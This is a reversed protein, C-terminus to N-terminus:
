RSTCRRTTWSPRWPEVGAWVMRRLVGRWGRSGGAIYMPARHGGQRAGDRGPLGGAQRAHGGARCLGAPGGARGARAPRRPPGAAAPPPHHLLRPQAQGAPLLPPRPRFLAPSLSPTALFYRCVLPSGACEGSASTGRQMRGQWPLLLNQGARSGLQLSQKGADGPSRLHSRVKQAALPLAFAGPPRAPQAPVRASPLPSPPCLPPHLRPHFSSWLGKLAGTTVGGFRWGSM